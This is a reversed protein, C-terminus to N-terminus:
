GDFLNTLVMNIKAQFMMNTVWNGSIDNYYLYINGGQVMMFTIINGVYYAKLVDLKEIVICMVVFMALTYIYGFGSQYTYMLIGM